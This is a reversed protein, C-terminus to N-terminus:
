RFRFLFRFKIYFLSITSLLSRGCEHKWRAFKISISSINSQLSSASPPMHTVERPPLYFKRSERVVGVAVIGLIKWLSKNRDVRHIIRCFKFDTAKGTGSIIPPVGFIPAAGSYAWAGKKRVNKHAKIRIPRIFTSALNSTHLQVWERYLLPYGLLTSLGQIRGREM